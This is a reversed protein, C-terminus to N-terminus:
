ELEYQKKLFKLLFEMENTELKELFSFDTVVNDAKKSEPKKTVPATKPITKVQSKQSTIVRKGSRSILVPILDFKTVKKNKGTVTKQFEVINWVPLNIMQNVWDLLGADSLEFESVPQEKDEWVIKDSEIEIVRRSWKKSTELLHIELRMPKLKKNKKAAM